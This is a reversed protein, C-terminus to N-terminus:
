DFLLDVRQLNCGYYPHHQRWRLRGAYADTASNTRMLAILDDEDVRGGDEVRLQDDAWAIWFSTGDQSFWKPVISAAGVLANPDGKPTWPQKELVQRWPGCPHEAVWIGFYGPKAGPRSAEPDTGSGSLMVYVNLPSNYAVSVRWSLPFNPPLGGRPFVHVVGRCDIDGTWEASGDPALGAFYEYAGRERVQAKPVRFMVLENMTGDTHGNPSYVYVYGDRNEGYDKGMQLFSLISFASQPEECFVTNQSTLQDHRARVVPTTGDQNFWTRGSDPSYILTAANLHYGPIPALDPTFPHTTGTSLYQYIVGDVSLLTMGYHIAPKEPSYIEKLPIDPYGDLNRWTAADPQVGDFVFVRTSFFHDEPALSLGSGDLVSVLQRGDKAWTFGSFIGDGGFRLITDDRLVAERVQKQLKM